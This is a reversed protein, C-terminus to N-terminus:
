STTVSFGRSIAYSIPTYFMEPGTTGTIIGDAYGYTQPGSVVTTYVPGGSDGDAIGPMSVLVLGSITHATNEYNLAAITGIHYGTTKGFCYVYGGVPIWGQFLTGVINITGSLIKVKNTLSYQNSVKKCIAYDGVNDTYPGNEGTSGFKYLWSEAYKNSPSVSINYIDVTSSDSDFAEYIVHGATLISDYTIGTVTTYTGCFGLTGGNPVANTVPAKAQITTGGILEITDRTHIPSTEESVALDDSDALAPWNQERFVIMGAYEMWLKSLANVTEGYTFQAYATKNYEGGDPAVCVCLRNKIRDVYYGSINYDKGTVMLDNALWELENLSYAANLFRIHESGECLQEYKRQSIPNKHVIWVYLLSGDIYEGGYDDPYVPMGSKWEFSSLIKYYANLADTQDASLALSPQATNLIISLAFVIVLILSISRKNM